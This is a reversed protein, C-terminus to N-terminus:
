YVFTHRQVARDRRWLRKLHRVSCEIRGQKGFHMQQRKYVDGPFRTQGRYLAKKGTQEVIGGCTLISSKRQDGAPGSVQQRKYVDLHTYSVLDSIHEVVARAISMGDFTSTGRGIEDLVM